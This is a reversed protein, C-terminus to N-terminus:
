QAHVKHYCKISFTYNNLTSRALNRNILTERFKIADESSPRETKTFKLYIGVCVLYGDITSQRFGRNKLHAEFHKLATDLDAEKYTWDVTVLRKKVM